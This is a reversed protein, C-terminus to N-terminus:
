LSLTSKPLQRQSYHFTRWLGLSTGTIWIFFWVFYAMPYADPGGESLLGGLIFGLIPPLVLSLTLASATKVSRLRRSRRRSRRSPVFTEIEDSQVNLRSQVALAVQSDIESFEIQM